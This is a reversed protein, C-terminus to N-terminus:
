AFAWPRHRSGPSPGDKSASRSSSRPVTSGDSAPGRRGCSRTASEPIGAFKRAAYGSVTPTAGRVIVAPPSDASIPWAETAIAAIVEHVLVDFGVTM